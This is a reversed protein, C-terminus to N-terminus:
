EFFCHGASFLGFIHGFTLAPGIASGNLSGMGGLGSTIKTKTKSKEECKGWKKSKLLILNIM